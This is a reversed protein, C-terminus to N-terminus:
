STTTVFGHLETVEITALRLMSVLGVMVHGPFIMVVLAGPVQPCTTLKAALPEPEAVTLYECFGPVVKGTPVVVTVAVAELAHPVTLQVKVTVTFSVSLGLMVQEVFM